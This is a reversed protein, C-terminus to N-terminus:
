RKRSACTGSRAARRNWSCAAARPDFASLASWIATEFAKQSPQPAGPLEGLVSGRHAALVELDLVQAQTKALAELLRSKGSGTAGCVVHFSFRAPMVELDAAVQRRFAKYGGDLQVADWGVQRLM